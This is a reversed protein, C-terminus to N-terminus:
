SLNNEIQTIIEVPEEVPSRDCTLFGCCLKIKKCRSKLFYTFMVGVAASASAIITLLFANHKELFDPDSPCGVKVCHIPCAEMNTYYLV